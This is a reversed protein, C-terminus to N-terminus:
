IDLFTKIKDKNKLSIKKQTYSEPTQYKLSDRWQQEAKISASSFDARIRIKIRICSIDIEKVAKLIKM